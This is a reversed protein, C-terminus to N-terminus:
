HNFHRKSLTLIEEKLLHVLDVVFHMPMINVSELRCKLSQSSESSALANQQVDLVNILPPSKFNYQVPKYHRRDINTNGKESNLCIRLKVHQKM